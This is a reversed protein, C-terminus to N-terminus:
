HILVIEVAIFATISLVFSLNCLLAYWYVTFQKNCVTALCVGKLRAQILGSRKGMRLVHVYLPLTAVYEDLKVGLHEVCFVAVM